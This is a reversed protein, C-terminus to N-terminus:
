CVAGWYLRVKLIMRGLQFHRIRFILSCAGERSGDPRQNLPKSELLEYDVGVEWEKGLEEVADGKVVPLMGKGCMDEIDFKFDIGTLQGVDVLLIGALKKAVSSELTGDDGLLAGAVQSLRSKKIIVEDDGGHGRGRQEMEARLRALQDILQSNKRELMDVHAIRERQSNLADNLAQNKYELQEKEACQRRLEMIEDVGGTTTAM